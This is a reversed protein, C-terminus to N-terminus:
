SKTAAIRRAPLADAHTAAIRAPLRADFPERARRAARSGRPAGTPSLACWAAILRRAAAPRVEEFWEALAFVQQVSAGIQPNLFLLVRSTAAFPIELARCVVLLPDGAPDAVVRAALEAPMGVVRRLLVAFEQAQHRLAARELQDGFNRDIRRIREEHEIAPCVPLAKLILKREATETALYHRALVLTLAPGDEAPPGTRAAATPRISRQDTANLRKVVSAPLQSRMKIAIAHAIGCSDLIAHLEAEGLAPSRRLIPEAVAIEDRALRSAVVAPTGPYSALREAVAARTPTDVGDLLRCILEAFRARELPSHVPEQVFQDALVRVLTPRLEVRDRRALEVLTQFGSQAPTSGSASM